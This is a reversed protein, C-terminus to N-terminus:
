VCDDVCSHVTGKNGATCRQETNVDPQLLTYSAFFHHLLCEQEHGRCTVSGTPKMLRQSVDWMLFARDRPLGNMTSSNPLLRSWCSGPVMARTLFGTKVATYSAKLSLRLESSPINLPSLEMLLMDTIQVRKVSGLTRTRLEQVTVRPM